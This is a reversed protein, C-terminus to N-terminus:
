KVRVGKFDGEVAHAIFSTVDANENLVFEIAAGLWQFMTASQPMLRASGRGPAEMIQRYNNPVEYLIATLEPTQIIRMPGTFGIMPGPPLCLLSWGDFPPDIQRRRAAEQTWPLADAPKFDSGQDPGAHWLGSLDPKGDAARPAPASLDPKGDASRPIGATPQTLWQGASTSALGLLAAAGVFFVRANATKM